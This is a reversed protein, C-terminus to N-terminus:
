LNSAGNSTGINISLRNLMSSVCFKSFVDPLQKRLTKSDFRSQEIQKFTVLEKGHADYVVSTKGMKKLIQLKLSEVENEISKSHLKLDKYRDILREIDLDAIMFEGEKLNGKINYVDEIKQPEPPSDKLVNTEWFDKEFRILKEELGKNRKYLYIRFTNGGILVALYVKDVGMVAAYHACQIVYEQPYDDTWSEGWESLSYASATKCELIANEGDILYDVNALMFPHESSRYTENPIIIKKGTRKEFEAGVIPELVNGFYMFENEDKDPAQGTKELWVDVKTKYRSLGCVAAADSGGIGTKRIELQGKTLM